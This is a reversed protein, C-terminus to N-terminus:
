CCVVESITVAGQASVDQWGERGAALLQVARERPDLGHCVSHPQRLWVLQGERRITLQNVLM